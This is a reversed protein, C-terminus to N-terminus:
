LQELLKQKEKRRKIRQAIYGRTPAFLFSFLVFVSAVIVIVPGTPLNSQSASITTGLVGSFAGFVAAIIMMKLLSNTWQRAAAAPALLLSSMLVVGVTQLGMVIVSVMFLMLLLNIWKISIGLSQAYEEHFLTIKIEKWFVAICLLIVCLTIVMVQVDERLLGAAQGFIYKELGSQNANPLKQIYTLLFMGFGFFVSLVIGLAADTKLRTYQTIWRVCLTGLIGCIFAGILLNNADKSLTILFAIAIGPLTAHSIADGLLSQQRLLAVSGVIGSLAGLMATGIAIVMFAPESVFDFM